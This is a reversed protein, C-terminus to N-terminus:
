LTRKRRWWLSGVTLGLVLYALVAASGDTKPLPPGGVPPVSGGPATPGKPGDDIPTDLVDVVQIPGLDTVATAVARNRVVGAMADEVTVTYTPGACTLSEGPELRTATCTLLGETLLADRVEIDTATYGGNNTVKFSYVIKDGPGTKGSGDVDQISSVQKDLRISAEEVQVLTTTCVGVECDEPLDSGTVLLYNTLVDDGRQGDLKVKVEYTVTLTEGPQINGTITLTEAAEAVTLGNSAEVAGVREADDLLESQDDVYDIAVPATGDENSFTLTYKLTDGAKVGESGVPGATKTAVLESAFNTTCAMEQDCQTPVEDGTQILYNALVNDGREGVPNVEASYTVVYVGGVPVSGSINFVGDTINSLTLDGVEVTPDVTITADDLIGTLFDSHDVSVPAGGVNRFTLTYSLEDGGQVASWSIPDVVKSVVLESVPNSTCTSDGALCSAPPQAGNAVLFNSLVSDGREGQTGVQVSYSVTYIEGAPVSGTINLVTGSRVASLDTSVLSSDSFSADDVIGALLDQHDVTAAATGSDNSFTLTYTVTDGPQVAAGSAPNVSKFVALGPNTPQTVPNTTCTFDGSACTAPPETGAVVLFNGLVNDGRDAAAKVTVGYTVTYTAGAPVSGSVSIRDGTQGVTLSSVTQPAGTLTADDLVGTLVDEHDVPVSVSGASNDFTLTYTLSQGAQVDTGSAPNVSKSVVLESVSHVTCLPDSSACNAPVTGAAPTLFNTLTNDGGASSTNTQVVLTVTSTEGPALTGTVGFQDGVLSGVTLPGSALTPGSLLVADDLVGNLYNIYDVPVDATGTSNFSFTYTVLDGTNLGTGSSPVSGMTVELQPITHRTCTTDAADCSAPPNTGTPVVFNLLLNDGRAGDANVEVEYTVTYTSNAPVSGTVTFQDGSIPSVTLGASTPLSTITADDLVGAILDTHDVNGAALGTNNFTLTYTLTGGPLVTTGDAPSSSKTVTVNPLLTRASSCSDINPVNVCATNNLDFDPSLAGGSPVSVSYTVTAVEGPLLPGSWNLTTGSLSSTADGAISAGSYAVQLDNNYVMENLVGSLDDTIAAPYSPRYAFNSTNTVDVTYTVTKGDASLDSRKSVTLDDICATITSTDNGAAPDAENGLVSATNTMCAVASDWTGIVSFTQSEAPALPSGFCTLVYRGANPGGTRLDVSCNADPTTPNLLDVPLVDQVMNGSSTFSSDNTVTLEFRTDGAPTPTIHVAAKKISLDIDPGPNAAGDNNSSGQGRQISVITGTPTVGPNVRVRLVRGTANNSFGLLGNGFTWAAGWNGTNPPPNGDEDTLTRETVSGTLPDIQLFHSANNAVRLSWLYGDSWAIDLGIPDSMVVSSLIGPGGLTGNVDIAVLRSADAHHAVYYIGDEGMAGTTYDGAAAPVVIPNSSGDLLVTVVNDQGIRLVQRNNSNIAYLYNTVPDYALANLLVSGTATDLTFTLEGNADTAGLYISTIPSGQGLFVQPLNPDFPDGPAAFARSAGGPPAFVLFATLLSTLVVSVLARSASSKSSLERSEPAM